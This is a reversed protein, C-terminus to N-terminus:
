GAPRPWPPSNSSLECLCPQAEVPRSLVSRGCLRRGPNCPGEGHGTISYKNKNHTLTGSTENKAIAIRAVAWRCKLGVGQEPKIDAMRIVKGGKETEDAILKGFDAPSGPLPTGGLGAFRAQL